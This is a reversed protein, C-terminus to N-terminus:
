RFFYELLRNLYFYKTVKCWQDVSVFSKTSSVSVCYSVTYRVTVRIYRAQFDLGLFFHM